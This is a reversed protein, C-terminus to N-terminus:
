ICTVFKHIWLSYFPGKLKLRICAHIESHRYNCTFIIIGCARDYQVLSRNDLLTYM